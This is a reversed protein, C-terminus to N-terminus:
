KETLRWILPHIHKTSGAGAQGIIFGSESMASVSTQHGFASPLNMYKKTTLQYLGPQMWPKSHINGLIIGRNDMDSPHFDDPVQVMELGDAATWTFCRRKGEQTDGEGVVVDDDNIATPYFNLGASGIIDTTGNEKSWVFGGVVKGRQRWGVVVGRSNVGIAKSWGDFSAGLNTMGNEASWLFARQLEQRPEAGELSSEGVVLGTVNIDRAVSRSGGLTGLDVMGKSEQWVFAHTTKQDIEASGVVQNNGNISFAHSTAGGFTGLRIIERAPTMVFANFPSGFPFFGHGVIWGAENVGHLSLWYDNISGIEEVTCTEGDRFSLECEIRQEREAQNSASTAYATQVLKANPNQSLIKALVTSVDAGGFMTKPILPGQVDGHVEGHGAGHADISYALCASSIGNRAAASESAAKNIEAMEHRIVNSPAGGRVVAKLRSKMQESVADPIGTILFHLDHTSRAEVVFTELVKPFPKTLSQANSIVAYHPTKDQFGALVFTHAFPEKQKLNIEAIWQSGKARIREVVDSFSSESQYLDYLWDSAVEDTRKGGWLGIGCHTLFGFWKQFRMPIIKSANPQLEIWNGEADRQTRSIRFDASQHIGDDSVVTINLTM